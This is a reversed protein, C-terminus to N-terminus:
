WWGGGVEAPPLRLVAMAMAALLGCAAEVLASVQMHARLLGPDLGGPGPPCAAAGATVMAQLGPCSTWSPRGLFGPRDLFDLALAELLYLGHEALRVDAPGRGSSAWWSRGWALEGWSALARAHARGATVIRIGYAVQPDREGLSCAKQSCASFLSSVIILIFNLLFAFPSLFTCIHMASTLLVFFIFLFHFSFSFFIFLFHFLHQISLFWVVCHAATYQCTRERFLVGFPSFVRMLRAISSYSFHLPPCYPPAFSPILATLLMPLSSLRSPAFLVLPLSTWRAPAFPATRHQATRFPPFCHQLARLRHTAIFLLTSRSPSRHPALLDITRSPARHPATPRPPSRHPATPRPPRPRVPAPHPAIPRSPARHPATTANVHADVHVYVYFLPQGNSRRGPQRHLLQKRPADNHLHQGRHGGQRLAQSGAFECDTVTLSRAGAAGGSARSSALVPLHDWPRGHILHRRSAARTPPASRPPSSASSTSYTWRSVTLQDTPHGGPGRGRLPQRAPQLPAPDHQPGSPLLAGAVDGCGHAATAREVLVDRASDIAGNGTATNGEFWNGALVLDSGTCSDLYVVHVLTRCAFSCSVLAVGSSLNAEWRTEEARFGTMTVSRLAGRLRQGHLPVPAHSQGLRVRHQGGRDYMVGPGHGVTLQIAPNSGRGGM